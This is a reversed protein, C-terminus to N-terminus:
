LKIGSWNMFFNIRTLFEAPDKLNIQSDNSAGHFCDYTRTLFFRVAALLCFDRFYQRELKTLPRASNYSNIITLAREKNFRNENDFCWANIAIALDYVLYDRSAFYFDILGSIKNELFFINDPFLDGHVVGKVLGDGLGSLSYLEYRLVNDILDQQKAELARRTVLEQFLRICGNLHYTNTRTTPFEKCSTHMKGILSGFEAAHDLSPDRMISKGELFSLIVGTKANYSFTQSNNKNAIINPVPFGTTALHRMLNLFFPIDQKSVRKEFITLIYKPGETQIIYNTNETGELIAEARIFGPINYQKIISAVDTQSLQTIVAM